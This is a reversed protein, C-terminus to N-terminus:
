KTATTRGTRTTLGETNVECLLTRPPDELDEQIFALLGDEQIARTGRCPSPM